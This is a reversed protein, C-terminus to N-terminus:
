SKGAGPAEGFAYNVAVNSVRKGALQKIRAPLEGNKWLYETEDGGGISKGNILVNPVTARGTIKKLMQQLGAGQVHENLEVVVPAPSITHADMLINKAKKSHPCYSKSFITVPGRSLIDALVLRINITEEDEEEEKPKSKADDDDTPYKPTEKGKAPAAEDAPIKKRGAVSKEVPPTPSDAVAATTSTSSSSSSKPIVVQEFKRTKRDRDVEAEIDQIGRYREDASKKADEEAKRLRAKLADDEMVPKQKGSGDESAAEEEDEAANDAVEEDAEPHGEPRAQPGQVKKGRRREEPTGHGEPEAFHLGGARHLPKDPYVRQDEQPIPSKGKAEMLALTRSYFESERTSSEGTIVYTLVLILVIALLILHHPKRPIPLSPASRPGGRSPPM